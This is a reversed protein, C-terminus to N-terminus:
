NSTSDQLHSYCQHSKEKLKQEIGIWDIFNLELLKREIAFDKIRNRQNLRECFIDLVEYKMETEEQSDTDL